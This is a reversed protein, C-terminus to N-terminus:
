RQGPCDGLVRRWGEVDIVIQNVSPASSLGGGSTAVGGTIRVGGVRVGGEGIQGTKVLGTIEIRSGERGKIEALVDKPGTMRLHTGEPIAPGPSDETRRAATFVYGKSCGPVFVRSSGKPVPKTEQAVLSSSLIAAALLLPALKM